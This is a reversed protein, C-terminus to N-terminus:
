QWSIAAGPAAGTAMEVAWRLLGSGGLRVVRGGVWVWRGVPHTQSRPAVSWARLRQTSWRPAHHQWAPRELGRVWLGVRLARLSGGLVCGSWCRAGAAPHTELARSRSSSWAWRLAELATPPPSGLAGLAAGLLVCRVWWGSWCRRCPRPPRSRRVVACVVAGWVWSCPLDRRAAIRTGHVSRASGASWRLDVLVACVQQHPVLDPAGAGHGAHTQSAHVQTPAVM